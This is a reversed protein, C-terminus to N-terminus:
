QRGFVWRISRCAMRWTTSRHQQCYSALAANGGDGEHINGVFYRFLYSYIHYYRSYIHIFYFSYVHLALHLLPINGCCRSFSSMDVYETLILDVLDYSVLSYKLIVAMYSSSLFSLRYFNRTLACPPSSGPVWPPHLRHKWKTRGKMVTSWLASLLSPRWRGNRSRWSIM